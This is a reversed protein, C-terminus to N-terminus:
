HGRSMQDFEAIIAAAEAARSEPTSYRSNIANDRQKFQQQKQSWTALRRSLGWTKEMEYRMKTHAQNEESWYDFFERIMDRGYKEVYPVLSDYFATRRRELATGDRAYAYVRPLTSANEEKELYPTHPSSAKEEKQSSQKQAKLSYELMQKNQKNQEQTETVNVNDVTEMGDMAGNKEREAPYELLLNNQKNKSTKAQKQKNEDRRANKNGKPAGGKRGAQSRVQSIREQRENDEDITKKAFHFALQAMPQLDAPVIGDLGYDVIAEYVELRVEAPAGKLAEFWEHHFTFSDKQM